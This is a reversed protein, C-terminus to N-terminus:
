RDAVRAAFRALDAAFRPPDDWHPTHGGGAYVIREAERLERLLTDQSAEDVYADDDGWILLTPATIRALDSEVDFAAVGDVLAHLVHAPMQLTHDVMAEFLGTPLHDERAQEQLAEAFARDIPDHLAHFTAVLEEVARM